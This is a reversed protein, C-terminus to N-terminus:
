KGGPSNGDGTFVHIFGSLSRVEIGFLRYEWVDCVYYYVGSPVIQKTMMNRGDWNIDPDETEFILGGWRSYIKMEVREVAQYPYPKFIDNVGDNNPTFTNPLRYYSCNDACISMNRNSENNFSDVATVVYCGALASGPYHIYTTDEPNDVQDILEFEGNPDATFYINYSLVDNACSNNPNTWVLENRLSDCNNTVSLVPPCSPFTDIPIACAEQSYNILTGPIDDIGYKGLSKVKYCYTLGNTLGKDIFTKSNTYAITDFDTEPLTRRYIVYQYNEWPVNEGLELKMENDGPTLNLFLSAAKGPVGIINWKSASADYNYLGMKYIRPQELTNYNTDVYATNHLGNIEVPDTFNTGYLDNSRFLKYQYPGPNAVSDFDLPETWEVHIAGNVQDTTSVSAKIMIPVGRSLESCVEASAYSEAGDPYYAVIMYCYEFGQVLGEGNDNDIYEANDAGQVSGIYTYETYDPVGLECEQPTFYARRNRRYIKYGAVQTCRSPDWKVFISNNTAELQVNEPAPGVVHINVNEYDVLVQDPNNDEAKFIVLYPQKRVHSCDTEWKFNGVATGYATDQDFSAPGSAMQYVGGTSSLIVREAPDDNATVSFELVSDAEVCFDDIDEIVPPMNDTEVVEVQMDRIISGIKVGNRWEEIETAFNYIGLVEPFNWILDGSIPDVKLEISAEPLSYDAIPEGNDGLCVAIKYSLSDGDPDYANPNHVFIQGRAAKDIPANLMIPTNNAGLNPNIQLITKVAFRINVSNPINRVGENRNPDEMMIVYTGAGPYTHTVVYRNRFYTEDALKIQQNRQVTAFTGDGFQIDLEPRDAPAGVLTYTILTIRYSYTGVQEYTIEGARNHTAYVQYDVLQFMILTILIGIIKIRHM